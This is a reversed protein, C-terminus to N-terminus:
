ACTSGAGSTTSATSGCVAEKRLQALLSTRERSDISLSRSNHDLLRIVGPRARVSRLWAGMSLADLRAADPHSWPDDPDVGRSLAAFEAEV